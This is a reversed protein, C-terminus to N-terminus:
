ALLPIRKLLTTGIGFWLPDGSALVCVSKGRDSIIQQITKEIPSEWIIHSRRDETSDPLMSLHRDGGIVIEANDILSRATASLGSLGYEGIGIISLWKECNIESNM